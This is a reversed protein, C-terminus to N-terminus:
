STYGKPLVKSLARMYLANYLYKEYIITFNFNRIINATESKFFILEHKIANYKRFTHEIILYTNNNCYKNMFGYLANCPMIMSKFHM